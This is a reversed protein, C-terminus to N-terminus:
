ARRRIGGVFSLVGWLAVLVGITGLFVQWRWNWDQGDPQRPDSLMVLFKLQRQSEMRSNEVATMAAQLAQTAFTVDNQLKMAELARGSLDRGAPSVLKAREEKIQRELEAVQDAVFQVEPAQGDRFQRRLSAEEVKLEVLKAELATIYNSTAQSEQVPDLQGYRVQFANLKGTADNLRTQAREVEQEAFRLQERSISQNMENVFAKAEQLLLQNLRQATAADLGTTTLQIVGSLEQPWVQVQRRFFDLQQDGTAKAPLGALRDWGQRRYREEALLQQFTRAMVEPSHLYVALYRGDELSGLMTPSGLSTGIVSPAVMSPAMPQRVLFDSSAQFRARGIGFSYVGALLVFVAGIGLPTPKPLRPKPLQQTVQRLQGVRDTLALRWRSSRERAATRFPLRVLRTM